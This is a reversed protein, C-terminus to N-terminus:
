PLKLKQLNKRPNTAKQPMDAVLYLDHINAYDGGRGLTHSAIIKGGGAIVKEYTKKIEEAVHKPDRTHKEIYMNREPGKIPFVEFPM